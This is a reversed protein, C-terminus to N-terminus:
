CRKDCGPVALVVFDLKFVFSFTAALLSMSLVFPLVSFFTLDLATEFLLGYASACGPSIDPMVLEIWEVLFAVFKLLSSSLYCCYYDFM